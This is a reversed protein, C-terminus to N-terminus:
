SVLLYDGAVRELFVHTNEAEVACVLEGFSQEVSEINVIVAFYM